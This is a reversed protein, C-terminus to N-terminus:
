LFLVAATMGVAKLLLPGTKSLILAQQLIINHKGTGILYEKGDPSVAKKIFTSKWAPKDEGPKVWEYFIWEDGNTTKAVDVIWQGIPKGNIDKLGLMNKGEGQLDRPYVYRMGDLGWVFIYTDGFFWKGGKKRFEPFADKGKEEILKAAKYVLTVVDKTQQHQYISLDPKSIDQIEKKEASYSLIPFLCIFFVFILKFSRKQM